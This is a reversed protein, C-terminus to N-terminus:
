MLVEMKTELKQRAGLMFLHIEMCSEVTTILVMVDVPLGDTSLAVLSSLCVTTHLAVMLLLEMFLVEFLAAKLDFLLVFTVEMM